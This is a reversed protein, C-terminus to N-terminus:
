SILLLKKVTAELSKILAKQELIIEKERDDRAEGIWKFYGCCSGTQM